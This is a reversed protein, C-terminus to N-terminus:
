GSVTLDPRESALRQRAGASVSTGHLGVVRLQEAAALAPVVAETIATRSLDAVAPGRALIRRAAADDLEACGAACLVPAHGPVEPDARLPVGFGDAAALCEELPYGLSTITEALEVHLLERLSRDADQRWGRAQGGLDLNGSPEVEGSRIAAADHRSVARALAAGSPEAGACHAIERLSPSADARLAEYAVELDARRGLARYRAHDARNRQCMRLLYERDDAEPAQFRRYEDKRLSASLVQDRPDRYLYVVVSRPDWSKYLDLEYAGAACNVTSLGRIDRQKPLGHLLHIADAVFLRHERSRLGGMAERLAASFYVEGVDAFGGLDDLMGALWHSGSSGLGTIYVSPPPEPRRFRALELIRDVVDEPTWGHLRGLAEVKRHLKTAQRRMKGTWFADVELVYRRFLHEADSWSRRRRSWM